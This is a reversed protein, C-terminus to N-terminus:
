ALKPPREMRDSSRGRLTESIGLLRLSARDPSTLSGASLTAVAAHCAMTCCGTAHKGDSQDESCPGGDHKAADTQNMLTAAVYSKDVTGADSESFVGTSVSPLVHERDAHDDHAAVTGLSLAFGMAALSLTRLLWYIPHARRMLWFIRRGEHRTLRLARDSQHSM